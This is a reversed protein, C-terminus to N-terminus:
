DGSVLFERLHRSSRARLLREVERPTAAALADAAWSQAQVLSVSRIAKKIMPIASANISIEDLGLGVLLIVWLPHSGMEGCCGVWIGAERAASVTDRIARLVAPHHPRALHSVQANTRDVALLYQTLDNTGLSFFDCELALEPAMAVAAPTEIMVGLDLDADFSAGERALDRRVRECHSHFSRMEEVDCVMPFMIKMPGFASARYLARLQTQLIEPNRLLFRAGRVGLFPNYERVGGMAALLKDGGVDLARFIVDGETVAELVGRYSQLQEDETPLNATRFYFYETRVLGIGHAGNAVALDIEQPLEINASLQIRHGDTTEAPAERMTVLREEAHRRRNMRVEFRRLTSADPDVFVLGRGGDVAIQSGPLILSSAERLGVVAPVGLSRAIIATHGTRGGEDLVFALVLNLDLAATQSPTLEHAVLITPASIEPTQEAKGRLARLVRQEVDRFDVMRERFLADGSLNLPILAEAMSRTFAVEAALGEGIGARM